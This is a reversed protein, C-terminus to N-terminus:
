SHIFSHIFSKLHFKTNQLSRMHLLLSIIILDSGRVLHNKFSNTTGTVRTIDGDIVDQDSAVTAWSMTLLM